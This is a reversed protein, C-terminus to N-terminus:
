KLHDWGRTMDMYNKWNTLDGWYMTATPDPGGDMDDVWEVPKGMIKDRHNCWGEPLATAHRDQTIPGLGYAEMDWESESAKGRLIEGRHHLETPESCSESIVVRSAMASYVSGDEMELTIRVKKRDEEQKSIPMHAKTM